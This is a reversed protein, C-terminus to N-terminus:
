DTEPLFSGRVVKSEWGSRWGLRVKDIKLDSIATIWLDDFLNIKGCLFIECFVVDRRRICPTLRGSGTLM